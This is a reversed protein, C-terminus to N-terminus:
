PCIGCVPCEEGDDPALEIVVFDVIDAASRGEAIMRSVTKIMDLRNMSQTDDIAEQEQM